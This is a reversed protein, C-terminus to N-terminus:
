DLPATKELLWAGVTDDLYPALTDYVKRNYANLWAKEEGTLLGVRVPSTDIHCLTLPEFRCWRGFDTEPAEVCLLLSEHRIGWRGERYIGPEDSTIMGPLLPQPNFNQRIDQPGEHVGLFFGVGHGTGHGFNRGARWLAIRALADIQCGATGLPFQAMALQIHGKLVLTYDEMEERTCPGLPVTRTIDTTGCLFQGGSDCLYLGRPQLVPADQFPTVYHPLAASPGYASITEFSDGRYGPIQSRLAGLKQAADWETVSNGSQVLTELWYLFKEMVIGDQLHAEKMGRIESTTKVAKRLPVPSPGFSLSGGGGELSLFLDYNLTSPDVWLRECEGAGICSLVGSAVESYDMMEVGDSALEDFTQLTTTDGSPVDEKMVFWKICDLGVLLYSLAYPNYDIDSARINLTWAIEDLSCLLIADCGERLLFKRIFNIRTLRDEGTLDDGITFIPTCPIPPRDEWLADILDPVSEIRFFPGEGPEDWRRRGAERLAAEIEQVAGLSFSLGDLALTVSERDEAFADRALWQPIRVEDPVRTRHLVYGTGPLVMEAQIFYRTDTWLGAHDGTVVVDGAEGGFGTLFRVQKWRDAPYESSHPDSGTFAVADWGREQMLARLSLLREFYENMATEKQQHNFTPVSEKFKLKRKMYKCRIFFTERMFDITM